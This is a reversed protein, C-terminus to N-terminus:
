HPYQTTAYNTLNLQKAMKQMRNRDDGTHYYFVWEARRPISVAVKQFYKYDVENCSHGLVIVKKVHLLQNWFAQHTCIIAEVPKYLENMDCIHQVRENNDRMCGGENWATTPDVYNRHGVVLHDDITRCGHIHLIHDPNIEYLHELTETYNFTLFIADQDLNLKKDNSMEVCNVWSSFSKDVITNLSVDLFFPEGDSVNINGVEEQSVYLSAMDWTAAKEFDYQGLATEFDCWLNSHNPDNGFVSELEFVVDFRGHNLLWHLFNIYRTPMGHMLDFGNGVIYLTTPM